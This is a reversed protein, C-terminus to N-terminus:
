VLVKLVHITEAGEMESVGAARVLRWWTSRLPPDAPLASGGGEGAPLYFTGNHGNHQPSRMTCRLHGGCDRQLAKELAFVHEPRYNGTLAKALTEESSKCSPDRFQALIVPDREGAVIARIISMDTIDTIVNTLQVNM